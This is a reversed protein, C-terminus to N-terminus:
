FPSCQTFLFCFVNKEHLIFCSKEALLWMRWLPSDTSACSWSPYSGWQGGQELLVVRDWLSWSCSGCFEIKAQLVRWLSLRKALPPWTSITRKVLSPGPQIQHCDQTVNVSHASTPFSPFVSGSTRGSQLSLPLSRDSQFYTLLM